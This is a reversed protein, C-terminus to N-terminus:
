FFKQSNAHNEVFNLHFFLFNVYFLCFFILEWSIKIINLMICHNKRRRSTSFWSHYIWLNSKKSYKRCLRFHGFIKQSSPECTRSSQGGRTTHLGFKTILMSRSDLQDILEVPLDQHQSDLGITGNWGLFIQIVQMARAYM